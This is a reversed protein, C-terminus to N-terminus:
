QRPQQLIVMSQPLELQAPTSVTTVGSASSVTTIGSGVITQAAQENGNISLVGGGPGGIDAILVWAADSGPPIGVTPTGVLNYLGDNYTVQYGQPSRFEDRTYNATSDWSGSSQALGFNTPTGQDQVSM